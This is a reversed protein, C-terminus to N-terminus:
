PVEVWVAAAPWRLVPQPRMALNRHRWWQEETIVDLVLAGASARPEGWARWDHHSGEANVLILRRGRLETVLCAFDARDWARHTVAPLGNQPRKMAQDHGNIM